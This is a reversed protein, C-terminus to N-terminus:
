EDVMEEHSLHNSTREEEMSIVSKHEDLPQLTQIPSIKNKRFGSNDDTFM